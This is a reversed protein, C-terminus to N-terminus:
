EDDVERGHIKDWQKQLEPHDEYWKKDQVKCHEIYESVLAYAYDIVGPDHIFRSGAEGYM